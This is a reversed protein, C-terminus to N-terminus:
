GVSYGAEYLLNDNERIMELFARVVTPDFQTGSSKKVEELVKDMEGLLHLNRRHLIDGFVVKPDVPVKMYEPLARLFNDSSLLAGMRNLLAITEERFDSVDMDAAIAVVGSDDGEEEGEEGEEEVSARVAVDVTILRLPIGLQIAALGIGPADYMTVLMDDILVQLADDFREVPKSVERLIPDPITIIPKISM